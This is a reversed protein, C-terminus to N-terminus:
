LPPKRRRKYGLNLGTFLLFPLLIAGGCIPTTKHDNRSERTEDAQPTATMVSTLIPTNTKQITATLTPLTIETPSAPTAPIPTPVPTATLWPFDFREENETLGDSLPWTLGYAIEKVTADDPALQLARHLEQLAKIKLGLTDVGEYGAFEAYYGLLEAYGAHWLADEPKLTVAQTYAADSLRFLQEVGPDAKYYYNRFGRWGHPSFILSKYLRGLRGWAEGDMPNLTVRDKEDLIQQWISPAAIAVMFNDAPEPEFNTYQWRIERGNIAGGPITCNYLSDICNLLFIEDVDYPFSVILDAKGITDKWGAGTSFVYNFWIYPMEGTGELMYSVRIPVDTDPPFIVEFDVWPADDGSGAPDLGSIPTSAVQKGNVRITIEEIVVMEGWGNNAGMPFRVRLTETEKGLNRMVFDATVKAQGLSSTPTDAQIELKVTEEVMRVQTIEQGPEPNAGPPNAPPAVDARVPITMFFLLVGVM